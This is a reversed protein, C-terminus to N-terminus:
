QQILHSWAGTQTFYDSFFQDENNWFANISVRFASDMRFSRSESVDNYVIEFLSKVHSAIYISLNAENLLDNKLFKKGTINCPNNIDDKINFAYGHYSILLVSRNVSPHMLDTTDLKSFNERLRDRLFVIFQQVSPFNSAELKEDTNPPM